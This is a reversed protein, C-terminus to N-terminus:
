FFVPPKARLDESVSCNTVISGPSLHGVRQFLVSADCGTPSNLKAPSVLHPISHSDSQSTHLHACCKGLVCMKILEVHGHRNELAAQNEPAWKWHTHAHPPAAPKRHGRLRNYRRDNTELSSTWCCFTLLSPPLSISSFLSCPLAKSSLRAPLYCRM